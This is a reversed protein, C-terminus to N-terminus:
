PLSCKVATTTTAGTKCYQLQALGHESTLPGVVVEPVSREERVMRVLDDEFVRGTKGLIQVLESREM